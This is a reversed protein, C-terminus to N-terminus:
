VFSKWNVGAVVDGAGTTSAVLVIQQGAYFRFKTIGLPFDQSDTKGLPFSGVQTGLTYSTLTNNYEIPSVEESVYNWAGDNVSGSAYARITVPKNLDAACVLRLAQSFIRNAKGKYTDGLRFALFPTDGATIARTSDASVNTSLADNLGDGHLGASASPTKLEIPTTNGTNVVYASLPLNPNIVSVETNKNTYEIEHVLSLNGAENEMFFSQEGFGLWQYQILFVNGKTPDFNPKTDVNWDDQYIWNEVGDRKRMVGFQTGNYGIAWGDTGNIIGILQQSNPQPTDFIATFKAFGGVGPIYRSSRVTEIKALGTASVGTNVVAFGESNTITGTDVITQKIVAPNINYTFAWSALIDEQAAVQVGFASRSVQKSLPTNDISTVNMARQKTGDAQEIECLPNTNQSYFIDGEAM